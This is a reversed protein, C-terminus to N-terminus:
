RASLRAELVLICIRLGELCGREENVGPGGGCLDRQVDVLAKTQGIQVKLRGDHAPDRSKGTALNTYSGNDDKYGYPPFEADFGVVLTKDDNDSSSQGGLLGDFWGASATGIILFLIIVIALILGIKKNM